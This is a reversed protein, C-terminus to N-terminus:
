YRIKTSNKGDYIELAPGGDSSKEVFMKLEVMLYNEEEGGPINVLGTANAVIM